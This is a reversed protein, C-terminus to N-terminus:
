AEALAYLASKIDQRKYGEAAASLSDFRKGYSLSRSGNQQIYVMVQDNATNVEITKGKETTLTFFGALETSEQILTM